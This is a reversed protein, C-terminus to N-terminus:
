EGNTDSAADEEADPAVDEEADISDAGMDAGTEAATSDSADARDVSTVDDRAGDSRSSDAGDPPVPGAEPRSTDFSADSPFCTAPDRQTPGASSPDGATPLACIRRSSPNPDVVARAPDNTTDLCRYGGGRCDDDDDCTKMCFTRRLRTSVSATSCTGESFAVCAAEDPCQNPECNFVTCYGGPQTIDCLRDGSLSCDTSIACDEGIKPKCGFAGLLAGAILLLRWRTSTSRLFTPASALM